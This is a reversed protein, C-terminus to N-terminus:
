LKRRRAIPQTAQGPLLPHLEAYEVLQLQRARPLRVALEPEVLVREILDFQRVPEAVVEGPLDLVVKKLFIRM